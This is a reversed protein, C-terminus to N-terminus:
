DQRLPVRTALRDGQRDRPGDSPPPCAARLATLGAVMLVATVLVAVDVAQDEGVGLTLLALQTAVGALQGAALLGVVRRLRGASALALIGFGAAFTTTWLPVAWAGVIVAAVGLAGVTLGAARLRPRGSDSSVAAVVVVTLVAAVLLALVLLEYPLEWNDGDDVLAGRVAQGAVVAWAVVAALRVTRLTKTDM